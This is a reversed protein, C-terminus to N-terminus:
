IVACIFSTLVFFLLCYNYNGRADSVHPIGHTSSLGKFAQLIDASGMAVDDGFDEPTMYQYRMPGRGVGNVPPKADDEDDDDDDPNSNSEADTAHHDHHIHELVGGSERRARLIGGSERRAGMVGGSERRARMVSQRRLAKTRDIQRLVNTPDEMDMDNNSM